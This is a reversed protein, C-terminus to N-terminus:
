RATGPSAAPRTESTLAAEAVCSKVASVTKKPIGSQRKINDLTGKPVDDGLQDYSLVVVWTRGSHTGEYIKHSGKGNRLFTINYQNLIGIVQRFKM